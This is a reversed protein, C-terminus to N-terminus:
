AELFQRGFRLSTAALDRASSEGMHGALFRTFLGPDKALVRLARRRLNGHRGLWVLLRGMVYTARSLRRHAAQYAEPRGSALGDALAVAQRFSLCLGEGTIADVSGSADGTLIVNGRYVRRSRRAVTV